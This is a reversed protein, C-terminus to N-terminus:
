MLDCKEKAGTSTTADGNETITGNSGDKAAKKEKKQKKQKKNDLQLSVTRTKEM